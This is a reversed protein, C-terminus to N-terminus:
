DRKLKLCLATVRCHKLKLKIQFRNAIDMQIEAKLFEILSFKLYSPDSKSVFSKIFRRM